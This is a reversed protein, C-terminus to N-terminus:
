ILTYFSPLSLTPSSKSVDFIRPFPRENPNPKGESMDIGLTLIKPPAVEMSLGLKLYPGNYYEIISQFMMKGRGTARHLDVLLYSM